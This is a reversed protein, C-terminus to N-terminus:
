AAAREINVNAKKKITFYCEYDGLEKQMELIPPNGCLVLMYALDNWIQALTKNIQEKNEM